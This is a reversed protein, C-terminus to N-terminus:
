SWARRCGQSSSVANGTVPNWAFLEPSFRGVERKQCWARPTGRRFWTNVKGEEVSWRM